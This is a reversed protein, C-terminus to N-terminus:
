ETWLLQLFSLVWNRRGHQVPSAAQESNWLIPTGRQVYDKFATRYEMSAFKDETRNEASPVSQSYSGMTKGIIDPNVQRTEPEKNDPPVNQRQEKEKEEQEISRLEEEFYTIDGNLEEIQKNISRVEDADKSDLGKKTLEDKRSRLELLKKTVKEKRGM